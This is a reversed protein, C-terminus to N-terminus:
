IKKIKISSRNELRLFIRRSCACGIGSSLEGFKRKSIVVTKHHVTQFLDNQPSLFSVPVSTHFIIFLVAPVTTKSPLFYIKMLASVEDRSQM